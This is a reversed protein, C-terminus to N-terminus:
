LVGRLAAHVRERQGVDIDRIKGHRHRAARRQDAIQKQFRRWERYSVIRQAFSQFARHLAYLATGM